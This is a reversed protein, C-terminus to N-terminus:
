KKLLRYLKETEARTALTDSFASASGAALGAMFASMYDHTKLWAAIFGAVMSDGAGVSNIVTGKPAGHTFVQGHKSVFVAGDGAMSVLVNVAGMSQLKKAYATVENQTSLTVGFIEELEHLNPKVLFPNYPLVSLLHEGSMDAAVLIDKYALSKMVDSYFSVGCSSPASGAIVLTDGSQLLELKRHLLSLANEDILPGDANIETEEAAKIKVNIRSIGSELTIFDSRGGSSDFLRQIEQGTFGAIFGLATNEVGFNNLVASVNLGKGGALIQVTETRNTQGMCLSKPQIIYDIAPNLTLTYIM